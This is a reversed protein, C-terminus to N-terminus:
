DVVETAKVKEDSEIVEGYRIKSYFDDETVLVYEIVIVMFVMVSYDRIRAAEDETAKNNGFEKDVSVKKDQEIIM